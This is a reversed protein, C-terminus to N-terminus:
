LAYTMTLIGRKDVTGCWNGARKNVMSALNVRGARCETNGDKRMKTAQKWTDSNALETEAMPKLM